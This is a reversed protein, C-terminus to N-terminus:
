ICRVDEVLQYPNARITGIAGDGYQKHIKVAYSPSIKLDALFLMVEQVAKQAQWSKTIAAIRKKGVGPIEKLREIQCDLVQLSAKGFHTVIRSALEEGIGPFVGSGLYREIGSISKPYVYRYADVQLQEGYKPHKRWSGSVSLSQGSEIEAFAGVITISGHSPVELKAVTFGTENAAFVIQAITGEITPM